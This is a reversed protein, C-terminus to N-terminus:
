SRRLYLVVNRDQPTGEADLGGVSGPDNAAVERHLGALDDLDLDGTPEPAVASDIMTARIAIGEDTAFVELERVQVPWEAISSTSIEWFGGSPGPRPTVKNVHTHGSLWAIVSGHRHLLEEVEDALRLRGGWTGDGTANTLTSLGHHSCIIVLREGASGLEGALWGFQREDVCGDVGGAPNTTDLIILRLGDIADYSYYATGDAANEATFGHGAPQQGTERHLRVYTAKDIMRREPLAEIDHPAATSFILPDDCYADLTDPRQTSQPDSPDRDLPRDSPKSGGTLFDDYGPPAPARGQVLCDHNGFCALWPAGLGGAEFPRAAAALAGPHNPLGRETKWRDRSTPEPNWYYENGSASVTSDLGDNPDGPRIPGGNMLTLFTQLENLQASDTNDGTTIVADFGRGPETALERITRLIAEIAQLLLFEQPRYAPLMRRWAPVGALRQLFELRSPSVLDALQFDTVQVLRGVPRDPLSWASGTILETRARHQEAPGATLRRYGTDPQPATRIITAQTTDRPPRTM